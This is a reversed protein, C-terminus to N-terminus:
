INNKIVKKQIKLKKYHNIITEFILAVIVLIISWAFVEAYEISTKALYLMNGISNKTQALYEAMV